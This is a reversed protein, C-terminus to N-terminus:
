SKIQLLMCVKIRGMDLYKNHSREVYEIITQFTPVVHLM